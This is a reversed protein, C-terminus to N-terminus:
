APSTIDCTPTSPKSRTPRVSTTCRSTLAGLVVKSLHQLCGLLLESCSARLGRSVANGRAGEDRLGGLRRRLAVGALRPHRRLNAKKSSIFTLLEDMELTEPSPVPQQTPAAGCSVLQGLQGGVSPQRRLGQRHPPLEHRRPLPVSGRAEDRGPLRAAQPRAHLHASVRPM